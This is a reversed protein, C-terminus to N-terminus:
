ILIESGHNRGFFAGFLVQSNSLSVLHFDEPM